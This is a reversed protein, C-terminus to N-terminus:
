NLQIQIKFWFDKEFLNLENRQGQSLDNRQSKAKLSQGLESRLGLSTELLNELLSQSPCTFLKLATLSPLFRFLSYEWQTQTTSM